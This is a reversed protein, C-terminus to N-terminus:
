CQGRLEFLFAGVAAAAPLREAAGEDMCVFPMAKEELCKM